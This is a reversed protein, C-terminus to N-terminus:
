EKPKLSYHQSHLLSSLRDTIGSALRSFSGNWPPTFGSGPPLALMATRGGERVAAQPLPHLPRWGGGKELMYSSQDQERQVCPFPLVMADWQLWCVSRWLGRLSPQAASTIRSSLVMSGGRGLAQPRKRGHDRDSRKGEQVKM